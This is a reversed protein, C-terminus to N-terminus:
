FHAQNDPLTVGLGIAFLTAWINFRKQAATEAQHIKELALQEKEFDYQAEKLKINALQQQNTISDSLTKHEVQYAYAQKYNGLKHHLGALSSIANSKQWANQIKISFELFINAIEIASKYEKRNQFCFIKARYYQIKDSVDMRTVLTDLETLLPECKNSKDYRANCFAIYCKARLIYPFYAAANKQECFAIVEEYMKIGEDIQGLAVNTSALSIKYTVVTNDIGIKKAIELAEEYYVSAIQYERRQYYLNGINHKIGGLLRILDLREVIKLASFSNELAEKPNRLHLFASSLNYHLKAKEESDEELFELAKKYFNIAAEFEQKRLSIHGMLKYSFVLGDKDTNKQFYPLLTQVISMTSDLQNNSALNYALGKYAKIELAKNGKAAQLAQEIYARGKLPTTYQYTNGISLLTNVRTETDIETKLIQELSDINVKQSFALFPSFLFFFVIIRKKITLFGSNFQNTLSM